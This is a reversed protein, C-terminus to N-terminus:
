DPDDVGPTGPGEYPPEEGSSACILKCSNLKITEMEPALYEIKKM